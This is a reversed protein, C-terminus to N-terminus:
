YGCSKFKKTKFNYKYMSGREAVEGRFNKYGYVVYVSSGRSTIEMVSQYRWLYDGYAKVSSSGLKVKKSGDRNCRYYVLTHTKTTKNYKGVVYYLKSGIYVCDYDMGSISKSTLVRVKMPGNDSMKWVTYKVIDGLHSGYDVNKYEDKTVREGGVFYKGSYTIVKNNYDLKKLKKTKLNYNYYKYTYVGDAMYCSLLINNGYIYDVTFEYENGMGSAKLKRIRKLKGSKITYKCLVNKDNVFFLVKGDTWVDNSYKISVANLTKYGSNKKTSVCLKYGGSVSKYQFYYKGYKSSSNYQIQKYTATKKKTAAQVQTAPSSLASAMGVVIAIILVMVRKIFKNERM